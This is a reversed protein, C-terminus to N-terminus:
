PSPNRNRANEAASIIAEYRGAAVSDSRDTARQLRGKLTEIYADRALARGVQRRRKREVDLRDMQARWAAFAAIAAQSTFEHEAQSILM